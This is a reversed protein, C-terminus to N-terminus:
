LPNIVLFNVKTEASAAATLTITFSGVGAVVNKITATGDNTAFVLSSATVLSNTVVLTTAAGAFNVSGSGKNITQAGTTGGASRFLVLGGREQRM